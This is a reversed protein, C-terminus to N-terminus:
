EEEDESPEPNDLTPTELDDPAYRNPRIGVIAAALDESNPFTLDDLIQTGDWLLLMTSVTHALKDHHLDYHAIQPICPHTVWLDHGTMFLDLDFKVTLELLDPRYRADIGAFAEDLAIMRPCTPHASSYQANAAAFLPLHIASSKEGGSLVSHKAKTLKEEPSGPRVLRLEFAHWARYDLVETLVQHYTRLTERARAAHIQERLLRRLEDLGDPGLYEPARALLDAVARQSDTVRDSAVWRIGVATGSSMPRSRTDADMTTVLDRADRTRAHIQQALQKLLADELLTRERAELLVSQDEIHERLRAAFPGIPSLGDADAVRVVLLGEDLDRELRYDQGTEDLRTSLVEAANMARTDWNRRTSETIPAASVTAHLADLHALVGSPLASRAEDNPDGTLPPQVLREFVVAALDDVAPWTSVPPWPTPVRVGLLECLDPKVFPALGAAANSQEVLAASLRHHADDLRQGSRSRRDREDAIRKETRKRGREAQALRHELQAKGSLVHAAEPDRAALAQDLEAALKAHKEERESQLQADEDLRNQRGQLLRRRDALDKEAAGLLEQAQALTEGSHEFAAVARAVQDVAAAETPMTRESAGQLLRRRRLDSEAICRDRLSRQRDQRARTADLTAAARACGTEAAAIAGIAPLDKEASALDGITQEIAALSAEVKARAQTLADLEADVAALRAARRRARATAGIFECAQKPHAGVQVSLAFQGRTTVMAAPRSGAPVTTPAGPATPGTASGIIEPVSSLGISTLLAEIREAPVLEQEEPVLVDDLTEGTPRAPRPLPVLYGDVDGDGISTRTLEGDPHVWATLLNAGYLAGEVAAAEPAPVEDRFRVLRWFPAGARGQRDATRLGNDAPADDREAAIEARQDRTREIRQSLDQHSSETTSRRTVLADRLAETQARFAVSLPAAGPQAAEELAAELAPVTGAPLQSGAGPDAWRGAWDALEQRARRRASDLQDQHRALNTEAAEVEDGARQLEEEARRQQQEADAVRSLLAHVAEVDNSRGVALGSVTEVLHEGWSVPDGELPIGALEADRVLDAGARQLGARRAEVARERGRVEEHLRDVEGRDEALRDRHESVAKTADETRARLQDIAGQQRYADSSLLVQLRRSLSAQEGELGRLEEEAAQLAETASALEGAAAAILKCEAATETIRHRAQDVATRARTGLYRTYDQLFGTVASDAAQLGELLAQIEALNDFDRAAQAILDNEVPRLGSTLAKSLEVPDLDKALLPKRLRLLMDVMQGYRERGLGFLRGDVAARYDTASKFLHNEGLSASLQRRTLPRAQRTLLGFDVGVRGDTVFYWRRVDTRSRQAQLGAGITVADVSADERQRAFEMWVYGVESEQGRYLLNSKMTRDESSFPDLRRPDIQGDLVFPFLVELAKTKGSGNHGKLALRGDAFVFEEDDYDWLNIVGARTPKFRALATPLQTGDILTM